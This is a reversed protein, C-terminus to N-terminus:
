AEIQGPETRDPKNELLPPSTGSPLEEARSQTSWIIEKLERLRDVIPKADTGLKSIVVGADGIVGWFRDLDSVKKHLEAQMKELRALLRQKHEDALKSEGIQKRLENILSQVRDLDGQSFEYYFSNGIAIKFKDQFSEMKSLATKMRFETQLQVLWKQIDSCDDNSRGTLNPLSFKTSILDANRMESILAYGELLSEHEDETWGGYSAEMQLLQECVELTCKIPNHKAEEIFSDNFFV